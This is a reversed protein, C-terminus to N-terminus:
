CIIDDRRLYMKNGIAREAKVSGVFAGHIKQEFSEKEKSCINEILNYLSTKRM